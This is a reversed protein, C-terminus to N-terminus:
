SNDEVDRASVVSAQADSARVASGAELAVCRTALRESQAADHSVWVLARASDEQLWDLMIAETAAATRPDMASTPEDALLVQPDLQVARLLATIQAEGGSLQTHRKRLFSEDRGLRQLCNIARERQYRQRMYVHLQFPAQLNHEVTGELMAARQGLYMVQSRYRPIEADSVDQGQWRITGAEIPDLMALCRLLLTKGAGSPGTLAIREGSEITVSVCDLLKQGPAAGHRSLDIAELLPKSM